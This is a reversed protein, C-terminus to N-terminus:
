ARRRPVLLLLLAAVPLLWAIRAQYRAHVTGGFGVAGANALAGALAGALLLLALELFANGPHM